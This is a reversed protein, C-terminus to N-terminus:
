KSVTIHNQKQYDELKMKLVNRFHDCRLCSKSTCQCKLAEKAFGQPFVGKMSGSEILSMLSEYEKLKLSVGKSPRLNDYLDSGQELKEKIESYCQDNEIDPLYMSRIHLVRYLKVYCLISNGLFKHIAPNSLSNFKFSRLVQGVNELVSLLKKFQFENLTVCKNPIDQGQEDVHVIQLFREGNKVVAHVRIVRDDSGIDHSTSVKIFPQKNTNTPLM